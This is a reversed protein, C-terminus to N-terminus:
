LEGERIGVTFKEGYRQLIKKRSEAITAITATSEMEKM